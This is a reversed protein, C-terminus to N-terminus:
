SGWALFKSRKAHYLVELEPAIGRAADGFPV